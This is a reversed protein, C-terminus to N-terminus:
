VASLNMLARKMVYLYTPPLSPFKNPSHFNSLSIEATTTAVPSVGVTLAPFRGFRALSGFYFFHTDRWIQAPM